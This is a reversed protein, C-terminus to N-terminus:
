PTTAGCRRSAARNPRVGYRAYRATLGLGQPEGYRLAAAVGWEALGEARM